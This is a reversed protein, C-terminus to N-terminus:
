VKGTYKKLIAEFEDTAKEWTFRKVYENGYKAIAKRGAGDDVLRIIAGALAEPDRQPTALISRGNVAYDTVAGVNTAVVASGCASAEMPTLGFGEVWSPCVFIDADSYLRRLEADSPNEVFSIWGPLGEPRKEGYMAFELGPRKENVIGLAKIGDGAGKNKYKRYPMLIRLRSGAQGSPDPYFVGTNIGNIIPGEVQGGFKEEVLRKLWSSITIKVLPFKYTRDVAEKYKKLRPDGPTVDAMALCIDGGKALRAADAWCGEDDWLGWAEYHQIFYFKKGKHGSLRSVAYATEWATAIVADADPILREVLRISGTGLSPVRILKAKLDFWKVPNGRFLMKLAGADERMADIAPGPAVHPPLLSYVVNVEHGKEALRNAYEFVVRSGGSLGIIGPLIFTIRMVSRM